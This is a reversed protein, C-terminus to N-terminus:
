RPRFTKQVDRKEPQRSVKETRANRGQPTSKRDQPFVGTRTPCGTGNEVEKKKIYDDVVQTIKSLFESVMKKDSFTFIPFRVRPTEEAPSWMYPLQIVWRGPMKHKICMIGRIEIPIDKFRIHVSAKSITGNKEVKKPYIAVVELNM